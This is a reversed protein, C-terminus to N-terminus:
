AQVPHLLLTGDGVREVAFDPPVVVTTNAQEVLVPGALRGYAALTEAQYVDVKQYRGDFWAERRGAPVAPAVPARTPPAPCPSTPHVPALGGLTPARTLLRLNVAEVPVGPQAYGYRQEHLEHFRALVADVAAADTRAPEPSGAGGAELDAELDAAFPVSIEYVQNVYRLDAFRTFSVPSVAPGRDPEGGAQEADETRAVGLDEVAERALRRFAADFVGAEPREGRGALSHVGYRVLDAHLMGRACLVSAGPPVVVLAIGLERALAAAHVPGAGGAAVLAFRRPDLGRRVTALRLSDAMAANVTQFVGAAAETLGIGLRGALAGVAREAAARSLALGDGFGRGDVYGLLLDADTVTPEDGGRGYCAPGPVAGASRPGVRLMGGPTVWAVSGGGAGITSIDLMPLCVPHGAVQGRSTTETRGDHSVSVEFSTGGMDVTMADTVGLARVIRATAAPAAAPGSLLTEVPRQAAGDLSIVGGASQVLLVPRRYGLGALRRALRDLYDRLVPGVCANLVATTTREFLRVEPVLGAALTVFVGPLEEALIEGARREHADNLFSFVFSVAVADVGSEAFWRAAARVDVEALPTVVTGTRDVRGRVTRILHRPVLHPLPRARSDFQDERSGQRALIVDRLGDTTLLGTRAHRGTILANTTITTGHVILDTRGLLTGPDLGEATALGRLGAVFGDTPDAPTSSTKHIVEGGDPRRLVLDTFTGGVDVAIRYGAASM